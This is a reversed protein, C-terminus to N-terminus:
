LVEAVFSTYNLKIELILEKAQKLKQELIQQRIAQKSPDALLRRRWVIERYDNLLILCWILGFLPLAAKLRSRIHVGYVNLAGVLWYLKEEQSLKMGPHFFFDSILKVPDDWGLYEFDIFFLSGDAKQIINHFGFDSPSIIQRKRPLNSEFDVDEPWNEQSWLILETAFPKFEGEFFANLEANKATCTDFQNLRNEIQDIIDTGSFCAASAPPFDKFERVDRIRDLEELFNLCAKIHSNDHRELSRGDIWSYAAVELDVDQWIPKPINQIGYKELAKLGEFESKLRNHKSDCPYIKIKNQLGQFLEVKYISSNGGKKVNEIKVIPDFIKKAIKATDSIQWHGNISLDIAQWDGATITNQGLEEAKLYSSSSNPSFLVTKLHPLSVLSEIVEVLDDIFVEFELSKIRNVKENRTAEFFVKGIYSNQCDILGNFKLCDLAAERLSIKEVDFHGYETKHSVITVEHGLKQCRWLFRKIGPFLKAGEKICRGYALGQLRQWLLEDGLVNRTFDRIESKSKVNNPLNLGIYQSAIEFARDYNLITNDLDIGIKM